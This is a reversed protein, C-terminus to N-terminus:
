PQQAPQPLNVAGGIALPGDVRVNRRRGWGQAFRRRSLVLDTMARAWEGDFPAGSITAGCRCLQEALARSRKTTRTAIATWFSRRPWSSRQAGCQAAQEAIFAKAPTLNEM